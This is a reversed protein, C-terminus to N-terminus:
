DITSEHPLPYRTKLYDVSDRFSTMLIIINSILKENYARQEAKLEPPVQNKQIALRKIISDLLSIKKELYRILIMSSNAEMVNFRQSTRQVANVLVDSPISAWVLENTKEDYRYHMRCSILLRKVLGEDDTTFVKKESPEQDDSFPNAELLIPNEINIEPSVPQGNHPSSVVEVPKSTKTCSLNGIFLSVASMSHIMLFLKINLRHM